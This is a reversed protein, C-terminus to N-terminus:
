GLRNWEDPYIADSTGFTCPGCLGALPIQKGNKLGDVVPRQECAICRRQYNPVYEDLEIVEPRERRGPM